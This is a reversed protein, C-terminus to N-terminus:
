VQLHEKTFELLDVTNVIDQDRKQLANSLDSTYGFIENMLHLMFVFEFSKFVELMPQAGLAEASNNEKGLRFLVKRISPYLSMVHMVTKYHSGWRADGPWALGMEQNLGQGAGIEGLKLAEIMYEAQAVRLM